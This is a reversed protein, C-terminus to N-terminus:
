VVGRKGRWLIQLALDLRKVAGVGGRGALVGLGGPAGAPRFRLGMKPCFNLNGPIAGFRGWLPEVHNTSTNPCGSLSVKRGCPGRLDGRPRGGNGGAVPGPRPVATGGASRCNEFFILFKLIGWIPGFM